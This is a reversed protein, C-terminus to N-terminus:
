SESSEEEESAAPGETAAAEKEAAAEAAAEEEALEAATLGRPAMVRIVEAEPDTLVQVGEPIDLDAVRLFSNIETLKSLDIIIAEPMDKPLCEVEISELLQSVTGGLDEAPAKGRQVLPVENRIPEDAVIRYLDVHLIRDTVPDRQVERILANHVESDGEIQVSILRSTGAQRVVREIAMYSFQISRTEFGHGYIVGPVIQARRLAKPKASPDRPQATLSIMDPM